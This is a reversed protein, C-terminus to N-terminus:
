DLVDGVVPNSAAGNSETRWRALFAELGGAAAHIYGAQAEGALCKGLKIIQERDDMSCSYEYLAPLMIVSADSPPRNASWDQKQSHDGVRDPDCVCRDMHLNQITLSRGIVSTSNSANSRM